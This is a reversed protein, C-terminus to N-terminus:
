KNGETEYLYTIYKMVDKKSESSLKSYMRKLSELETNVDEGCMYEISVGFYDAINKVVILDPDRKGGEYRSITANSVGVLEGLSRTTLGQSERLKKLREAFIQLDIQKM